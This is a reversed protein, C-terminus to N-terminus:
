ADPRKGKEEDLYFVNGDPDSILGMFGGWPQSSPAMVSTAGQEILRDFTEAVDAVEFGVGTHRGVLDEHEKGAVALGVRLSGASFSAFRYEASSFILDLGIVDRYFAVSRDLNSVFINVYALTM